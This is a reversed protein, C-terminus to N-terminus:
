TRFGAATYYREALLKLHVENVDRALEHYQLALRNYCHPDACEKAHEQLISIQMDNLLYESGSPPWTKPIV